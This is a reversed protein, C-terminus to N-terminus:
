IKESDGNGRSSLGPFFGAGVRSGAHEAFDEPGTAHKKKGEVLHCFLNGGEICAEVALSGEQCLKGLRSLFDKWGTGGRINQNGRNGMGDFPALDWPGRTKAAKAYDM